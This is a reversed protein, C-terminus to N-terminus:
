EEDGAEYESDLWAAFANISQQTKGNRRGGVLTCLLAGDNDARNNWSRFFEKNGALSKSCNMPDGRPVWGEGNIQKCKDDSYVFDYKGGCLSSRCAGGVYGSSDEIVDRMLYGCNGCTKNERESM